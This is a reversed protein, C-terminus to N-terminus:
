RDQRRVIHVDTDEYSHEKNQLHMIPEIPNLEPSPWDIAEIDKDNLLHRCGRAM